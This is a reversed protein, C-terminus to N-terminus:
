SNSHLNYFFNITVEEVKIVPKFLQYEWGEGAPRDKKAIYDRRPRSKGEPGSYREVAQFTTTRAVAYGLLYLCIVSILAPYLKNFKSM